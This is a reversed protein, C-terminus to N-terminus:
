FSVPIVLISKCFGFPSSRPCSPRVNCSIMSLLTFCSMSMNHRGSVFVCQFCWRDRVFDLSITLLCRLPEDVYWESDVSGQVDGYLGPSVWVMRWGDSCGLTVVCPSSGLPIPLHDQAVIRPLFFLFIVIMVTYLTHLWGMSCTPVVVAM